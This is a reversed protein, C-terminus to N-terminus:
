AELDPLTKEKELCRIAKIKVNPDIILQLYKKTKNKFHFLPRFEDKLVHFYLQVLM